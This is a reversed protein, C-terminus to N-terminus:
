VLSKDFVKALTDYVPKKIDKEFMDKIEKYLRERHKTQYIQKHLYKEKTPRWCRTNTPILCREGRKWEILKQTSNRNLRRCSHYPKSNFNSLQMM